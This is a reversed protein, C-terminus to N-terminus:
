SEEWLGEEFLVPDEPDPRWMGLGLPLIGRGREGDGLAFGLGVDTGKLPEAPRAGLAGVEFPGGFAFTGSTGSKLDGGLGLM